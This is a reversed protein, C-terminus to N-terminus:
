IQYLQNQKSQPLASFQNSLTKQNTIKEIKNRKQNEHQEVIWGCVYIVNSANGNWFLAMWSVVIGIGNNGRRHFRYICVHIVIGFFCCLKWINRFLYINLSINACIKLLLAFSANSERVFMFLKSSLAIHLISIFLHFHM